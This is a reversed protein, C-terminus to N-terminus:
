EEVPYGLLIPRPNLYGSLPANIAAPMRRQLCFDISHDGGELIGGPIALTEDAGEWWTAPEFDVDPDVEDPPSNRDDLDLYEDVDEALYLRYEKTAMLCPFGSATGHIVGWGEGSVTIFWNGGPAAPNGSADLAEVRWLEGIDPANLSSVPTLNGITLIEPTPLWVAGSKMILRAKRGADAASTSTIQVAASAANTRAGGLLGLRANELNGLAENRYTGVGYRIRDVSPSFPTFAILANRTNVTDIPTTFNPAGTIATEDDTPPVDKRYLLLTTEDPAPM